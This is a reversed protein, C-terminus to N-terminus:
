GSVVSVDKAGLALVNACRAQGHGPESALGLLPSISAWGDRSLYLM